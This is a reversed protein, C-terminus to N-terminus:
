KQDSIKALLSKDGKSSLDELAVKLALEVILSKSIQGRTKIPSLKRLQIWGAELDELVQGSIYFTAKNKDGPAEEPEKAPPPSTKKQRVPKITNLKAPISATLYEPIGTNHYEPKITAQSAPKSTNHDAPKSSGEQTSGGLLAGLVDPTQRRDAM